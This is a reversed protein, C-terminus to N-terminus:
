PRRSLTEHTAPLTDAAAADKRSIWAKKQPGIRNAFALENHNFSQPVQKRAQQFTIMPIIGMVETM